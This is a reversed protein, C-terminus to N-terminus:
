DLSMMVIGAVSGDLFGAAWTESGGSTTVHRWFARNTLRNMMYRGVANSQEETRRRQRTGRSGRARVLLRIRVEHM